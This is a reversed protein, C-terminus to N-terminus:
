MEKLIVENISHGHLLANTKPKKLHFPHNHFHSPGLDLKHAGSFSFSGFEAVKALRLTSLAIHLLVFYVKKKAYKRSSNGMYVM